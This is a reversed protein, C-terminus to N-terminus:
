KKIIKKVSVTGDSAVVSLLYIGAGMGEMDISLVGDCAAGGNVAMAGSLSILSYSSVAKASRVNLVTEVPNPFVSLGEEGAVVYDVGSMWQYFEESCPPTDQGGVAALVPYPHGPENKWEWVNNFDWGLLDSFTSKLTLVASPNLAHHGHDAWQAQSTPMGTWSANNEAINRGNANGGFRAVYRNGEPAEVGANLAVSSAVNGYNAGIVGGVYNYGAVKGSAFTNRVTGKNKGILGGVAYDGPNEVSVTSYCDSVTAGRNEGILGGCCISSAKVKGTTYCQSINGSFALGVLAGTFTTGSIDAGVVGLDRIVAGEVANFVGTASGKVSSGDIIVNKLLHGKGDFDAKFPTGKSGIGSFAGLEVDADMVFHYEEEWDGSSSALMELDDRTKLVFPSSQTGEGGSYFNRRGQVMEVMMDGTQAGSTKAIFGLKVVSELQTDTLHYFEKINDIRFTYVGASGGMRYRATNCENWSAAEFSAGEGSVAWTYCYVENGLDRTRITVDVSKTSVVPSPSTVVEDAIAAFAWACCLALCIVRSKM